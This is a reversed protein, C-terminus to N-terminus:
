PKNPCSAISKAILHAFQQKEQATFTSFVRTECAEAFADLFQQRVTIGKPLLAIIKVRRDGPKETRYILAKHELGDILGTINSADCSLLSSLHSMPQPNDPNILFLVHAQMPTLDHQAGIAIVQQKSLVMFSILSHYFNPIQEKEV